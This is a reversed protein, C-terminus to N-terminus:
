PAVAAKTRRKAEMQWEESDVQRVFNARVAEVMEQRQGCEKLAGCFTDVIFQFVSEFAPSELDLGFGGVQEKRKLWTDVQAKLAGVRRNSVASTDLGKREHEAREFGLSASEDALSIMIEHLVDTSEPSRRVAKLIPDNRIHEQKRKILESVVPSVPKIEVAPPRGPTSTMTYPVGIASVVLTDTPLVGAIPRWKLRNFVDKVQIRTADKPALKLIDATTIPVAAKPKTM